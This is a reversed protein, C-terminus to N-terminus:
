FFFLQKLTHSPRSPSQPSHSSCVPEGCYLWLSFSHPLISKTLLTLPPLPHLSPHLPVLERSNVISQLHHPLPTLIWTFISSCLFCTSSPSSPSSSCSPANPPARPLM